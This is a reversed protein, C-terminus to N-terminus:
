NSELLVQTEIHFNEPPFYFGLDCSEVERLFPVLSICVAVPVVAPSRYLFRRVFSWMTVISSTTPALERRATQSNSQFWNMSPSIPGSDVPVRVVCVVVRVVVVHSLRVGVVSGAVRSSPRRVACLNGSLILVFSPSFYNGM